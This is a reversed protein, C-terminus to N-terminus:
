GWFHAVTGLGLGIAAAAPLYNPLPAPPVPDMNATDGYAATYIAEGTDHGAQEWAALREEIQAKTLGSHIHLGIATAAQQAAKKTKYTQM